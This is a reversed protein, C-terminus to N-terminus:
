HADYFGTHKRWFILALDRFMRISDPGLRVSSKVQERRLRVPVPVTTYGRKLAITLLEVDFAFGNVSGARFLDGAVPAAFGKIGCQTDYTRGLIMARVLLAFVRSAISRMMPISSFYQSGVLTRDGLVIDAGSKLRAFMQGISELEFPIDADTFLRSQGSAALMGLRVAAGKGLNAPNQVLQCGLAQAVDRTHGNDTSGDDAIIIEFTINLDNLYSVLHPVHESLLDASNYSPIIISLDVM